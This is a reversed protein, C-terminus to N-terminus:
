SAQCFIIRLEMLSERAAQGPKRTLESRVGSFAEESRVAPPWRAEVGGAWKSSRVAGSGGCVSEWPVYDMSLGKCDASGSTGSQLEKLIRVELVGRIQPFCLVKVGKSDASGLWLDDGVFCVVKLGNSDASIENEPNVGKSDASGCVLPSPPSQM